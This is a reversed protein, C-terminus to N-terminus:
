SESKDLHKLRKLLLDYDLLVEKIEGISILVNAKDGMARTRGKRNTLRRLLQIGKSKRFYDAM